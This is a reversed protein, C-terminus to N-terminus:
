SILSLNLDATTLPACPWRTGPPCATCFGRATRHHEHFTRCVLADHQETAWQWAPVDPPCPAFVTV